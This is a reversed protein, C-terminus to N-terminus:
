AASGNLRFLTTELCVEFLLGSWITRVFSAFLRDMMADSRIPDAHNIGTKRDWSLAIFRGRARSLLFVVKSSRADCDMLLFFEDESRLSFFSSSKSFRKAESSDM